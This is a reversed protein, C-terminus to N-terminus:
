AATRFVESADAYVHLTGSTVNGGQAVVVKVRGMVPITDEVATGAAAYLSAAGTIGHTAGRPQYRGSNVNTLTVLAAGTDEETITWDTGVDLTGTAIVLALLRGAFPPTYGTFSGDAATTVAVAFRRIAM